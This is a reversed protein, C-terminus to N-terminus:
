ILSSLRAMPINKAQNQSELILPNYNIDSRPFYTPSVIVGQAVKPEQAIIYIFYYDGTTQKNKGIM